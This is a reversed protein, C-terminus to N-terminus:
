WRRTLSVGLNQINAVYGATDKSHSASFKFGWESTVFHYWVLGRSNSSSTNILASVFENSRGSSANAEVYHDADGQYYYRV